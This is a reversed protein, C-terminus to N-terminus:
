EKSRVIPVEDEAAADGEEAGEEAAEGEEGEAAAAEAAEGEEGEAAAAEAAESVLELAEAGLKSRM